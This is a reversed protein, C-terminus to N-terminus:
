FFFHFLFKKRWIKSKLNLNGIGEEKKKKIQLKIREMERELEETDSKKNSFFFKIFENIFCQLRTTVM